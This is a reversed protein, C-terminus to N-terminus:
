QILGHLIREEPAMGSKYDDATLRFPSADSPSVILGFQGVYVIRLGLGDCASDVVTRLISDEDYRRLLDAYEKSTMANQARLAFALLRGADYAQNALPLTM